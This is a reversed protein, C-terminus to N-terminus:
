YGPNQKLNINLSLQSNPIPWLKDEPNWTASKQPLFKLVSDARNTRKLDYWRHGWEAFLEIKREAEVASLVEDKTAVNILPLDTRSRVANIDSLGEFLKDQHARAEARILYQEALRFMMYYENLPGTRIKYKTPYYVITGNTLTRNGVWSAKRKDSTDFSKYLTDTLLYTPTPATATALLLNGEWTNAVPNLPLLQWIAETSSKLFVTSLDTPLSYMGSGIVASAETEAEAWKGNYLLVRALLATATWKNPRIRGTVTANPPNEYAPTLLNQANRLDSIIQDYVKSASERGLVSTINYDSVLALPVDGFLNVLHFYCFARIFYCEGKLKSKLPSSVSTSKDLGELCLNATYIFKYARSWFSNGIMEHNTGSIQNAAFEDRFTPSFYRLEDACMGAFLTVGSATFQTQTSATTGIMDSYIGTIAGTATIDNTFVVETAMPNTPAPINVFKKCSLLSAACLLTIYLKNKILM